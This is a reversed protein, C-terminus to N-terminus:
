GEAPCSQVDLRISCDSLHQYNIDLSYEMDVTLSDPQEDIRIQSAQIGVMMDGMPTVYCSLNKKDKEFQMHTNAAGKKIIDMGSPSVKIVNRITGELGKSERLLRTRIRFQYVLCDPAAQGAGRNHICLSGHHEASVELGAEANLKMNLIQVVRQVCGM